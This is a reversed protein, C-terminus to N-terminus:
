LSRIARVQYKYNKDSANQTGGTYFGQCGALGYEFETSRWYISEQFGGITDKNLYLTNLEDRDPLRWGSGLRECARKADYWNLPRPFDNQAVEFNGFKIPKGIVDIINGDYDTADEELKKKRESDTLGDSGITELTSEIPEASDTKVLTINDVFEKSFDNYLYVNGLMGWSIVKDKEDNDLSKSKTLSFLLYNYRKTMKDISEVIKEGLQQASNSNNDSEIEKFIENKITDKHEQTSPNTAMLAVLIFGFVILTLFGKRYGAILFLIQENLNEVNKISSNAVENKKKSRSFLYIVGALISLLILQFPGIVPTSELLYILIM